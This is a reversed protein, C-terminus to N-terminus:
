VRMFFSLVGLGRVGLGTNKYIYVAKKKKFTAHCKKPSSHSWLMFSQPAIWYRRCMCAICFRTFADSVRFDELEKLWKTWLLTGCHSYRISQIKLCGWSMPVHHLASLSSASSRGLM